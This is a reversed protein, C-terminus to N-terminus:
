SDSEDTSASSSVSGSTQPSAPVPGSALLATFGLRLVLAATAFYDTEVAAAFTAVIFVALSSASFFFLFLFVLGGGATSVGTIGVGDVLSTSVSSSYSSSAVSLGGTMLSRVALLDNLGAVL